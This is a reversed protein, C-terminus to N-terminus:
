FVLQYLLVGFDAHLDDAASNFGVVNDTRERGPPYGCALASKPLEGNPCDLFIEEPLYPFFSDGEGICRAPRLRDGDYVHIWWQLRDHGALGVLMRLTM